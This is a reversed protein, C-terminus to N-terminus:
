SALTNAVAFETKRAVLKLSCILSWCLQNSLRRRSVSKCTTQEDELLHKSQLWPVPVKRGKWCQRKGAAGVEPRHLHLVVHLSDMDLQKAGESRTLQPSCFSFSFVMTSLLRCAERLKRSCFRMDCVDLSCISFSVCFLVAERAEKESASQDVFTDKKTTM